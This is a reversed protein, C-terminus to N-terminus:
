GWPANLFFTMAILTWSCICALIVIFTGVLAVMALSQYHMGSPPRVRIRREAPPAETQSAPPIAENRAIVDPLAERRATVDPIAENRAIVDPIAEDREIVDPPTPPLSASATKRVRSSKKPNSEPVPQDM